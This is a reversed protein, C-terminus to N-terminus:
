RKLYSCSLQKLMKLLVYEFVTIVKLRSDLNIQLCLLINRKRMHAVVHAYERM